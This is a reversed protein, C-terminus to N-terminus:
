EIPKRDKIIRAPSGVALVNDPIEKVATTGAGLMVNEGIRGLGSIAISGIGFMTYDGVKIKAGVVSSVSILCSHGVKAHHGVVVNPSIITYDGLIAKTWIVAGMHIYVGNGIVASKSIHASPHILTPTKGGLANVREMIDHRIKNDGVAVIFSKGKLENETCESFEGIVSIDMIENVSNEGYANYFGAVNYGCAEALELMVGAYSGTGIIYIYNM